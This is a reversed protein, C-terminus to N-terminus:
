LRAAITNILSILEKQAAPEDQLIEMVADRLEDLLALVTTKPIGAVAQTNAGNTTPKKPGKAGSKRTPKTEVGIADLLTTIQKRNQKVENDRVLVTNSTASVDDPLRGRALANDKQVREGIERLQIQEQETLKEGDAAKTAINLVTDLMTSYDKRLRSRKSKVNASEVLDSYLDRLKDRFSIFLMSDRVDEGSANPRLDDHCLHVEGIHWELLDPRTITVNSDHYARDSYINPRGIPFSDRCVSIGANSGDLRKNDRNTAFWAHGLVVNRDGVLVEISRPTFDAAGAPITKRLEANQFFLRAPHIEHADYFEQIKEVLHTAPDLSYSCGELLTKRMLEPDQTLPKLSNDKGAAHILVKTYHAEEPATDSELTLCEPDNMIKGISTSPGQLERMRKTNLTLKFKRNVGLRSTDVVITDGGTFASWFGIGRFGTVGPIDRKNTLAISILLEIAERDLGLGEDSVIINSSAMDVRVIPDNTLNRNLAALHKELQFYSDYANKVLERVIAKPKYIDKSFRELIESGIHDATFRFSEKKAM